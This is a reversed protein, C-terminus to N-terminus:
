VAMKRDRPAVTTTLVGLENRCTSRSTDFLWSALRVNPRFTRANRALQVFVCQTAEEALEPIGLDRLCTSYVLAIHREVLQGFAEESGTEIYQRILIWDTM